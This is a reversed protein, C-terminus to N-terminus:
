AGYKDIFAEESSGGKRNQEALSWHDTSTTQMWLAGSKRFVQVSLGFQDFFAKEFEAVTMHEDMLFEGTNDRNYDPHRAEAITKNENIQERASSGEGVVHPTAYFQIRLYPFRQSFAQQIDKLKKSGTIIM